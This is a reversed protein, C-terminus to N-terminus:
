VHMQKYHFKIQNQNPATKLQNSTCDKMTLALADSINFFITFNKIESTVIKIESYFAMIPPFVIGSESPLCLYNDYQITNLFVSFTPCYVIYIYVYQNLSNIMNVYESHRTNNSKHRLMNVYTRISKLISSSHKTSHYCICTMNELHIDQKMIYVLTFPEILCILIEAHQSTTGYYWCSM